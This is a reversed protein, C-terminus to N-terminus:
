HIGMNGLTRMADYATDTHQEINWVEGHMNYWLYGSSARVTMNGYLFWQGLRGISCLSNVPYPLDQSNVSLAFKHKGSM